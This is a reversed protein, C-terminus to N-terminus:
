TSSRPPHCRTLRLNHGRPPSLHAQPEPLFAELTARTSSLEPAGAHPQPRAPRNARVDDQIYEEDVEAFFENGRLSLFWSIWTSDEDSASLESRM